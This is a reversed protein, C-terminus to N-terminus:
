LTEIEALDITDIHKLKARYVLKNLVEPWYMDLDIGLIAIADDQEPTTDITYTM